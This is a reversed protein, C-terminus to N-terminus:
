AWAAVAAVTPMTPKTCYEFILELCFRAASCPCFWLCKGPQSFKLLGEISFSSSCCIFDQFYTTHTWSFHFAAPLSTTTNCMGRRARSQGFGDGNGTLNSVQSRIFLILNTQQIVKSSFVCTIVNLTYSIWYTCQPTWNCLSHFPCFVM